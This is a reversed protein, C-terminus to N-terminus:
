DTQDAFQQLRLAPRCRREIVAGRVAAIRVFPVYEIDGFVHDVRPSGVKRDRV